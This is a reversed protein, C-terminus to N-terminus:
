TAGEALPATFGRLMEGIARRVSRDFAYVEYSLELSQRPSCDVQWSCKDLQVVALKEQGQRAEIQLLNKAFERVLYSGPIWVPLSVRQQAAPRAIRLTVAFRHGSLDAVSVRYRIPADLGAAPLANASASAPRKAAPRAM